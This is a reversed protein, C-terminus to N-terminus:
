QRTDTMTTVKMMHASPRQGQQHTAAGADAGRPSSAWRTWRLTACLAHAVACAASRCSHDNRHFRSPLSPLPVDYSAGCLLQWPARCPRHVPRRLPCAARRRKPQCCFAGAWPLDLHSHGHTHLQAHSRFLPHDPAPPAPGKQAADLHRPPRSLRPPRLRHLHWCRYLHRHAQKSTDALPPTQVRELPHHSPAVCGSWWAPLVRALRASAIRSRPGAM